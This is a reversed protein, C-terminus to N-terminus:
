ITLTREINQIFCGKKNGSVNQFVNKKLRLTSNPLYNFTGPGEYHRMAFAVKILLQWLCRARQLSGQQTLDQPTVLEDFYLKDTDTEWCRSSPACYSSPRVNATM